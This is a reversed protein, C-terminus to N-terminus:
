LLFKRLVAVDLKYTHQPLVAEIKFGNHEFFTQAGSKHPVEVTIKHCNYYIAIERLRELLMSGVGHRRASPTVILGEIRALSAAIRASLAGVIRGESEAALLQRQEHWVVRFDFLTSLAEREYEHLFRDVRDDFVDVIEIPEDAM